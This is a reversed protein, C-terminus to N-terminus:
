CSSACRGTSRREDRTRIEMAERSGDSESGLRIGPAAGVSHKATQRGHGGRDVTCTRGSGPSRSSRQFVRSRAHLDARLLFEAPSGFCVAVTAVVVVQASVQVLTNTPPLIQPPVVVTPETGLKPNQNRVVVAPPVVPGHALKPLKGKSAQLKDRDGGGGGGSSRLNSTVRQLIDDSSLLTM